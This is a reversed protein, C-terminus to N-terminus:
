HGRGNTSGGTPQEAKAPAPAPAPQTLVKDAAARAQALTATDPIGPFEGLGLHTAAQRFGRAAEADSLWGNQAGIQLGTGLTQLTSGINAFISSEPDKSVVSFALHEPKMTDPLIGCDMDRQLQLRAGMTMFSMIDRKRDRIFSYAPGGMETATAKNVDGGEAFWHEPTHLGGLCLSLIFKVYSISESLHLDASITTWKEDSDHINLTGPAPPGEKKLALKREDVKNGGSKNIEVDWVMARQVEIRESETRLTNDFIELYDFVALVDSFGRTQASLRNIGLYLTDGTLRGSYPCDEIIELTKTKSKTFGDFITIEKGLHIKNLREADYDHPAIREISEGLIKAMVWKGSDDSCPHCYYVWEGEVCLSEVRRSLESEWRNVQWFRDLRAQVMKRITDDDEFTAQIQFGNGCIFSRHNQLCKKIVPHSAWLFISKKQHRDHQPLTLDRRNSQAGSGCLRYGYDEDTDGSDPNSLAERVPKPEAAAEPKAKVKSSFLSALWGLAM